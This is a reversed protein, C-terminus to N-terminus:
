DKKHFLVSIKPIIFPTERRYQRYEEGFREELEKEEVIKHYLSGIIFALTFGLLGTLLFLFLIGTGFYYLIAGLEIPNRCLKFPGQVILRQTPAYPNPTGNGIKWQVVMAWVLFFIGAVIGFIGAVYKIVPPLPIYIYQKLWEGVIYFFVPAIIMFIVVGFVISLVKTGKTRKENSFSLLLKFYESNKM